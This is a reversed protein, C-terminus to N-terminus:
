QVHLLVCKYLGVHFTLVDQKEIFVNQFFTSCLSVRTCHVDSPFDIVQGITLSYCVRENYPEAGSVGVSLEPDQQWWQCFTQKKRGGSM